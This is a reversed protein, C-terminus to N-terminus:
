GTRAEDLLDRTRSPDVRVGPGMTSALSVARLYKGKAAAPKLHYGDPRANDVGAVTQTFRGDPCVKKGLEGSLHGADALGATVRDLAQLRANGDGYAYDRWPGQLTHWDACVSNLALVKAGFRKSVGELRIAPGNIEGM